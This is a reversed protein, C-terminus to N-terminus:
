MRRRSVYRIRSRTSLRMQTRSTDLRVVVTLQRLPVAAVHVICMGDMQMGDVKVAGANALEAITATATQRGPIALILLRLRSAFVPSRSSTSLLLM